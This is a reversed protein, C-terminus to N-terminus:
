FGVQSLFHLTSPSLPSKSPNGDHNQTVQPRLPEQLDIRVRTEGVCLALCRRSSLCHCMLIQSCSIHVKLHGICIGINVFYLSQHNFPHCDDASLMFCDLLLHFYWVDALCKFMEAAILFIMYWCCRFHKKKKKTVSNILVFQFLVTSWEVCTLM